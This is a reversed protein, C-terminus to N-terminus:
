LFLFLRRHRRSDIQKKKPIKKRQELSFLVDVM